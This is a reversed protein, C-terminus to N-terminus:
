PVCILLLFHIFAILINELLHFHQEKIVPGINGQKTRHFQGLILIETSFISNKRALPHIKTFPFSLHEGFLAIHYFM